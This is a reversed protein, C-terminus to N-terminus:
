GSPSGALGVLPPVPEDEEDGVAMAATMSFGAGMEGLAAELRHNVELDQRPSDNVVLIHTIEERTVFRSGWRRSDKRAETEERDLLGQVTDMQDMPQPQNFEYAYAWVTRPGPKPEKSTM